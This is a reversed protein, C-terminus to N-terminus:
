KLRTDSMTNQPMELILVQHSLIGCHVFRRRYGNQLIAWLEATTYRSSKFLKEWISNLLEM